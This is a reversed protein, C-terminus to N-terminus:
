YDGEEHAHHLRTCAAGTHGGDCPLALRLGFPVGGEGQLTQIRQFARGVHTHQTGRRPPVDLVPAHRDGGDETVRGSVQM